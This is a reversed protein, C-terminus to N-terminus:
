LKSSLAPREVVLACVREAGVFGAGIAAGLLAGILVGPLTGAAARDILWKLM